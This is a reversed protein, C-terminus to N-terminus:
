LRGYRGLWGLATRAEEVPAAALLGYTERALLCRGRASRDGDPLLIGEAALLMRAEKQLTRGDLEAADGSALTKWGSANASRLLAALLAGYDTLLNEPVRHTGVFIEADLFYKCNRWDSAAALRDLQGHVGAIYSTLAKDDASGVASAVLEDMMAGGVISFRYFYNQEATDYLDDAYRDAIFGAETAIASYLASVPKPASTRHAVVREAWLWKAQHLTLPKDGDLVGTLVNMGVLQIAPIPFYSQPGAREMNAIIWAPVHHDTLFGELTKSM